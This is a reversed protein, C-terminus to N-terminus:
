VRGPLSGPSFVHRSDLIDKVRYLIKWEPRPPGFMDATNRFADTAKLFFSHGEMREMDRCFGTWSAAEVAAAGAWIKGCGFDILLREVPILRQLLDVAVATRDPAVHVQLVFSCQDIASYAKAFPGELLTDDRPEVASFSERQFFSEARMLQSDVTQDFGEFGISLRWGSGNGSPEAAAFVSGLSSGMMELSLDSCAELPGEGSLVACREPRTATKFTARTIVGLTGASGAILRTMDYGAVNKVV